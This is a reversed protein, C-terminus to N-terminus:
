WSSMGLVSRILVPVRCHPYHISSSHGKRHLYRGEMHLAQDITRSLICEASTAGAAHITRAEKLNSLMGCRCISLGRVAAFMSCSMCLLYRLTPMVHVVYNRGHKKMEWLWGQLDRLRQRDPIHWRRGDHMGALRTREYDSLIIEQMQCPRSKCSIANYMIHLCIECTCATQCM